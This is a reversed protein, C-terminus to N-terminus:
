ELTQFINWLIWCTVIVLTFFAWVTYNVITWEMSDKTVNLLSSLKPMKLICDITYFHGIWIMAMFLSYPGWYLLSMISKILLFFPHKVCQSKATKFLNQNYIGWCLAEPMISYFARHFNKSLIYFSITILWDEFM